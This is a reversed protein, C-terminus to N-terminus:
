EQHLEVLRGDPDRLYASKGWDYARPAHEFELGKESLLTHEQEIDEVSFAFHDENPPGGTMASSKTHILLTQGDSQFIAVHKNAFAPETNLLRRYFYTLGPVDNTFLAIETIRKM